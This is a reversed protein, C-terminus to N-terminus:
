FCRQNLKKSHEFQNIIYNDISDVKNQVFVNKQAFIVNQFIMFLIVLGVKM